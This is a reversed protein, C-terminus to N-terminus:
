LMCWAILTGAHCIICADTSEIVNSIGLDSLLEVPKCDLNWRMGCESVVCGPAIPVFSFTRGVCGSLSESEREHLVFARLGDEFVHVRGRRWSVLQGIVALAHDPRGGTMCTCVLDARPWREGVARLALSLDTFDKHPDYREVARVLCAGAPVAEGLECARVLASAIEGVSDADGCFLDCDMGAALVADLGHDVAVVGDVGRALSRILEASSAQPSGGVVLVRAPRVCDDSELVGNVAIGWM